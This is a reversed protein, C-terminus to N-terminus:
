GDADEVGDVVMKGEVGHEVFDSGKAEFGHFDAGAAIGVIVMAREIIEDSVAGLGFGPQFFKFVAADADSGETTMAIGNMGVGFVGLFVDISKAFSNKERFHQVYFNDDAEGAAGAASRLVRLRVPDGVAPGGLVGLHLVPLPFFFDDRIPFVGRFEGAFVADLTKREFHMGVEGDVVRARQQFEAFGDAFFDAGVIIETMEKPLAAIGDFDDVEEATLAGNEVRVHFVGNNEGFVDVFETDEIESEFGALQIGGGFSEAGNAVTVAGAQPFGDDLRVHVDAEFADEADFIFVGDEGSFDTDLARGVNQFIDAPFEQSFLTRLRSNTPAHAAAANVPAAALGEANALGAGATGTAESASPTGNEREMMSQVM